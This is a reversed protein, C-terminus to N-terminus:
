RPLGSNSASLRAVTVDYSEGNPVFREGNKGPPKAISM